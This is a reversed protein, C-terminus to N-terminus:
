VHARGIEDELMSALAARMRAAPAKPVTVQHWSIDSSAMVAVVNDARPMAQPRALGQRAPTLGDHSLVYALERDGGPSVDATSAAGARNRAPLLIILTSM